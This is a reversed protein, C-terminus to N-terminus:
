EDELRGHQHGPEKPGPERAQDRTGLPQRPALGTVHVHWENADERDRKAEFDFGALALRVCLAVLEDDGHETFNGEM